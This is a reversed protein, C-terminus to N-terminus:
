KFTLKIHFYHSALNNNNFYLNELKKKTYKQISKVCMSLYFSLWEFHADMSNMLSTHYVLKSNAAICTNIVMKDM